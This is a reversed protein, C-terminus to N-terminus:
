RLPLSRQKEMGAEPERGPSVKQGLRGPTRAGHEWKDERWQGWTTCSGPALLLHPRQSMLLQQAGAKSDEARM